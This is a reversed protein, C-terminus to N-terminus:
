RFIRRARLPEAKELPYDELGYLQATTGDENRQYPVKESGFMNYFEGNEDTM